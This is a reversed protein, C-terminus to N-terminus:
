KMSWSARGNGKNRGMSIQQTARMMVHKPHGLGKKSNPTQLMAVANLIMRKQLDRPYVEFKKFDSQCLFRM